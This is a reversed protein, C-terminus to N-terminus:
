ASRVLKPRESFWYRADRAAKSLWAVYGKAVYWSVDIVPRRGRGWAQDNPKRHTCANAMV